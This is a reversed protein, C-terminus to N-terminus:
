AVASMQSRDVEVGPRGLPSFEGSHCGAFWVEKLDTQYIEDTGSKIVNPDSTKSSGDSPTRHYFNPRFKARHQWPFPTLWAIGFSTGLYWTIFNSCYHYLPVFALLLLLDHVDTV